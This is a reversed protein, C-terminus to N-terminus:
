RPPGDDDFRIELHSRYAASPGQVRIVDDVPEAGLPWVRTARFDYGDQHAAEWELHVAAGVTLRGPGPVAVAPFLVRCGGPTEVSDVVGWGEDDHWERVTGVIM